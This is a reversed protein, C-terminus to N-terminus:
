EPQTLSPLAAVAEPVMMAPDLDRGSVMGGQVVGLPRRRQFGPPTGVGTTVQVSCRKEEASRTSIPAARRRIQTV